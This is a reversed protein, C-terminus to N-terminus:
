VDYERVLFPFIIQYLLSQRLSTQIKGVERMKDM